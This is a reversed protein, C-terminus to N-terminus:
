DRKQLDIPRSAAPQTAPRDTDWKEVLLNLEREAIPDPERPRPKLDIRIDAPFKGKNRAPWEVFANNGQDDVGNAGLSYVMPYEGDPQYRITVGDAMPDLPVKPLYKPTLSELLAPLRDDHEVAYWRIALATAALRRQALHGFYMAAPHDVWSQVNDLGPPSWSSPQPVPETGMQKMFAPLNPAARIITIARDIRRIIPIADSLFVPQAAKRAWRSQLVPVHGMDVLSNQVDLASGAALSVDKVWIRATRLHDVIGTSGGTEDLLEAILKEIDRPAAPRGDSSEARGIQMAPALRGICDTAVSSLGISTLTGTGRSVSAARALYLIERIDSVAEAHDGSVAANEAALALVQGLAWQESLNSSMAPQYAPGFKEKWDFGPRAHAAKLLELSKANDRLIRRGLDQEAQTPPWDRRRGFRYRWSATDKNIRRAAAWLLLAANQEDPVPVSDFSSLDTPEGAARLSELEAHFTRQVHSRWVFYTAIVLGLLLLAAFVFYHRWKRRRHVVSPPNIDPQTRM